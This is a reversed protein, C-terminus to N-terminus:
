CCSAALIRTHVLNVSTLARMLPCKHAHQQFSCCPVYNQHQIVPSTFAFKALSDATHNLLRDIKTVTAAKNHVATDFSQIHAQMRWDPPDSHRDSNLFTVLSDCDSFFSVLRLDM